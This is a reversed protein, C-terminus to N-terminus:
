EENHYTIINNAIAAATQCIDFILIFIIQLVFHQAAVCPDRSPKNMTLQLFINQKLFHFFFVQLPYIDKHNWLIDKFYNLAACYKIFFM